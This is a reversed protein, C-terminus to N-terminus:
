LLKPHMALPTNELELFGWKWFLALYFVKRTIILKMQTCPFLFWILSKWKAKSQFFFPRPYSSFSRNVTGKSFYIRLQPRCSSGCDLRWTTIVRVDCTHLGCENPSGSLIFPICLVCNSWASKSRKDSSIEDHSNSWAHKSWRDRSVKLRRDNDGASRLRQNDHDDDHDDNILRKTVAFKVPYLLNYPPLGWSVVLSIHLHWRWM